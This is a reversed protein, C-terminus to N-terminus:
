PVVPGKQWAPCATQEYVRNWDSLASVGEIARLVAWLEPPGNENYSEVEYANGTRTVRTLEFTGDTTFSGDPDFEYKPKFQFFGEKELLSILKEFEFKPITGRKVQCYTARDSPTRSRCLKTFLTSNGNEDLVIRHRLCLMSSASWEYDIQAIAQTRPQRISSANPSQAQAPALALSVAIVPLALLKQLRM